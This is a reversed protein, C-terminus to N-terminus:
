DTAGVAFEPLRRRDLRAGTGPEDSFVIRGCDVRVGDCPEDRLLVAGDLDAFDLLPLLQAAASIGISSEVMCGVMTKLGLLRAQRLMRLAPTLGGCKCLKVNVGHFKGVCARVDAEAQCDEDAIVPLASEAFVRQKDNDNADNPLPQEIFEVNLDKFQHSYRIAEDATWACNADVRLVADTEQRLRRIIELDNSTGLKVKYVPWHPHERLRLLMGDITDIPITYSSGPVAARDLGWLDILRSGSLRGALDHAALDIACMAFANDGIRSQLRSWLQEPQSPDADEIVDRVSEVDTLLQHLTHGYFSNATVEGLGIHGDQELEVLLAHQVDLSGRSITFTQALPLAVQHLTLKL